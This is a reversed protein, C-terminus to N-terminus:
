FPLSLDINLKPKAIYVNASTIKQIKDKFVSEDANKSSLHILVVNRLATNDNTKILNITTQLEMHTQLVRNRNEDEINIYDKSYNCECLIHNIHQKSFNYPCYELDTLFLLKGIEEHEIMYGYCEINKDHPVNFPIIKFNGVMVSKLPPIPVAYAKMHEYIYDHTEKSSYVTIGSQIYEKVHGAHDIM